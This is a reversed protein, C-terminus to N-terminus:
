SPQGIEAAKKLKNLERVLRTNRQRLEKMRIEYWDITSQLRHGKEGEVVGADFAHYLRNGLYPQKGDFPSNSKKGADSEIWENFANWYPRSALQTRLEHMRTDFEKQEDDNFKM